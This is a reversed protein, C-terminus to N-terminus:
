NGDDDASGVDAGGSRRGRGLKKKVDAIFVIINAIILLAIVAQLFRKNRM